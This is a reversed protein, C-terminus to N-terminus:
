TASRRSRPGGLEYVGGPVAGNAGRQVAAAVDDVWVPQFRTGAGVVPLVPGFRAM